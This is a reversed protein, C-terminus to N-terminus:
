HTSDPTSAVEVIVPRHDSFPANGTHHDLVRFAPDTLVYDIRLGPINGKYTAGLGFGRKKFTDHLNKNFLHYSYSQPIDNLDGALIVPHPSKRVAEAIQEAQKSRQRAAYRFRGMMGKIDLWTEKEQLSGEAAVKDALGSVANSHLHVNFLRITQEEWELDLLQFGNTRNQSYHTRQARFPHRSFVALEGRKGTYYHSLGLDERLMQIHSRTHPHRAPFEQLVLVDPEHKQVLAKWDEVKVFTNSAYDKKLRHCNFTMLRLSPAGSADGDWPHFGVFSTLHGWGLLICGLSFLVYPHKRLLWFGTFFLHALLLWPYLLGLFAAPWFNAPSVHPALYTLLTILILLLNAWRM